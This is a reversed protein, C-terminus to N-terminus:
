ETCLDARGGRRRTGPRRRRDAVSQWRPPGAPRVAPRLQVGRLRDPLARGGRGGRRRDPAAQHPAAGPVALHRCLGQGTGLSERLLLRGRPLGWGPGPGCTDRSVGIGVIVCGDREHSYEAVPLTGVVGCSRSTPFCHAAEMASWGYNVRGKGGSPEVDIEEYVNQGADAIFLDGTKPDFSFQWPNRLGFDWIERRADPRLAAM